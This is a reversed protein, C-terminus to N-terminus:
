FPIESSQDERRSARRRFAKSFRGGSVSVTWSMSMHDLVEANPV